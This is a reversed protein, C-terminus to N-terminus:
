GCAISGGSKKMRGELPRAPGAYPRGVQGAPLEKRAVDIHSRSQGTVIVASGLALFGGALGFGIDSTGGTILITNGSM